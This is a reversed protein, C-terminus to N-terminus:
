TLCAPKLRAVHWTKPAGRSRRPGRSGAGPVLLGTALCPKCFHGSNPSVSTMVCSLKGRGRGSTRPGGRLRAEANRPHQTLRSERRIPRVRQAAALRDHRIADRRPRQLCNAAFGLGFAWHSLRRLWCANLHRALQWHGRWWTLWSVRCFKAPFRPSPLLGSYRGGLRELPM